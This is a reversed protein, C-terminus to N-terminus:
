DAPRTPAVYRSAVEQLLRALRARKLASSEAEMLVRTQRLAKSVAAIFERDNVRQRVVQAREIHVMKDAEALLDYVEASKESGLYDHCFERVVLRPERSTNWLLAPYLFVVPSLRSAFYTSGSIVGFTTVAPVGLRHYYQLDGKLANPAYSLKGYGNGLAMTDDLWYGLVRTHSAGFIELLAEFNKRDKANQASAPDDLAHSLSQFIPAWELLLGPAPRERKPPEWTSLYALYAFRAQPRAEHLAALMQNDFWLILDSVSHNRYAPSTCPSLFKDAPWLFFDNIEAPMKAVLELMDNKAQELSATDDPCFNEGFFHREIQVTLGRPEATRLVEPARLASSRPDHWTHLGITNLKVKAAFDIMDDLDPTTPFIVIGRERFSPTEVIDYGTLKAKARPVVEGERGPFYWRAGLTELYRYAGYLHARPSNGRVVLGRPTSRLVFSDADRGALASEIPWREDETLRTPFVGLYIEGEGPSHVITTEGNGMAALYRALERAAFEEPPAPDTPLVIRLSALTAGRAGGSPFSVGVIALLCIAKQAVSMTTGRQRKANLRM